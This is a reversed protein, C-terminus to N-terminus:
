PRVMSEKQISVKTQGVGNLTSSVLYTCIEAIGHPSKEPLRENTACSRRDDHFSWINRCEDTM